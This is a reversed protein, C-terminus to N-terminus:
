KQAQQSKPECQSCDLQGVEGHAQSELTNLKSCGQCCGPCEPQGQRAKKWSRWFTRCVFAGALLVVIAIILPQWM